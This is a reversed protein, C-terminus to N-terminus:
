TPRGSNTYSAPPKKSSVNMRNNLVDIVTSLAQKADYIGSSTPTLTGSSTTRYDDGEGRSMNHADDGPYLNQVSDNSLTKLGATIDTLSKKRPLNGAPIHRDLSDKFADFKKNQAKTQLGPDYMSDIYNHLNKNLKKRQAASKLTPAIKFAELIVQRMSKDSERHAAHFNAKAYSQGGKRAKTVRGTMVKDYGIASTSALTERKARASPVGKRKRVEKDFDTFKM